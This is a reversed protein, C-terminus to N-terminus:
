TLNKAFTISTPQDYGDHRTRDVEDYGLRAFLRHNETLEVRSELTAHGAGQARAWGEAARFLGSGIGKGHLGPRVAVKGLYVEPGDLKAFLCGVPYAGRWALFLTEERAKQALTDPTMRTLSSPPDIRGDMGAFAANLLRHLGDWDDFGAGAIIQVEQASGAWAQQADTEVAGPRVARIATLAADPAMGREVMLRMLAMGSRGHGGYCHALVTEGRDLLTHAARAASPWAAQVSPSPTGWDVIPLRLLAIDHRELAHHLRAPGGPHEEDATMSLVLRVGAHMLAEADAELTDFRGPMPAIGLRGGGPLDVFAMTMPM